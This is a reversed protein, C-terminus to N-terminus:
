TAYFWRGTLRGCLLLGILVASIAWQALVFSLVAYIVLIGGLGRLVELKLPSQIPQIKLSGFRLNLWLVPICSILLASWIGINAIPVFIFALLGSIRLVRTARVGKENLVGVEYHSVWTVAAVYLTIVLPLLWAGAEFAFGEAMSLGLCANGARCLGMVVPGFPGSKTSANYLYTLACVGVACYATETGIFGAIAIACVQMLLAIIWADRTAFRGSPLPRRPREVRDVEIDFLDNCIMGSMYLLTSVCVLGAAIEAGLSMGCSLLFALAGFVDASGSFVAPLRILELFARLM